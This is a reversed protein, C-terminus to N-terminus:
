QDTSLETTLTVVSRNGPLVFEQSKRSKLDYDYVVHNLVLTGEVGAVQRLLMDFAVLGVIREVLRV